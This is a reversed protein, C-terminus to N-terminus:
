HWNYYPDLRQLLPRWHEISNSNTGTHIDVPAPLYGGLLDRPQDPIKSLYGDLLTKFEQVTGGAGGYDRIHRPLTNYLKASRYTFSAQRLPKTRQSGKLGPVELTRGRTGWKERVGENSSVFGSIMKWSYICLYREMRRQVSSMQIKELRDWAHLGQLSPIRRTWSRMVSELSDLEQLTTPGWVQSAYDLHPGIYTRYLFKMFLQNRNRFTRLLWASVQKCKAVVMSIHKKFDGKAGVQIGLDRSDQVFKIDEGGPAKYNEGETAVTGVRIAFTKSANIAMGHDTVWKYVAELVEQVKGMDKNTKIAGSIKNDDAFLLSWVNEVTEAPLTEEQKSRWEEQKQQIIRGIDAIFVSFFVPSLAAGQAVGSDVPLYDSLERNALVRQTRGGTLFNICYQLLRGCVGIKKLKRILLGHGAKDFARSLDIYISDM